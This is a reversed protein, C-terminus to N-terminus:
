FVNIMNEIHKWNLVRGSVGANHAWTWDDYFIFLLLPSRSDSIMRVYTVGWLGWIVDEESDRQRLVLQSNYWDEEKRTGRNYHQAKFYLFVCFIFGMNKKMCSLQLLSSSQVPKCCSKM